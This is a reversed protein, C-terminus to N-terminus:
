DLSIFARGNEYSLFYNGQISYVKADSMRPGSFLATDLKMRRVQELSDKADFPNSSPNTKEQELEREIGQQMARRAQEIDDSSNYGPAQAPVDSLAKIANM